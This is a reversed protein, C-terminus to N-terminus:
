ALAKSEMGDGAFDTHFVCHVPTRNKQQIGVALHHTKMNRTIFQWSAEPLTSGDNTQLHLQWGLKQNHTFSFSQLPISLGMGKAKIYAEKLTWYTFFRHEKEQTDNISLIDSAESASLAYHCLTDMDHIAKVKEVDVGIPNDYSIACAILDPTRSLNFHLHKYGTNTIFPKGYRNTNFQWQDPSLAAHQSLTERLFTHAAIYQERDKSFKFANARTSEKQDLSTIKERKINKPHAVYVFVTCEAKNRTAQSQLTAQHTM